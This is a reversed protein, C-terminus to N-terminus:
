YKDIIPWYCRCRSDLSPRCLAAALAGGMIGLWLADPEPLIAISQLAAPPIAIGANNMADRLVAFDAIDTMGDFNLDGAKMRELASFASANTQWGAVFAQLDAATLVRDQNVDGLVASPFEASSYLYARAVSAQENLNWSSLAGVQPGNRGWFLDYHGNPDRKNDHLWATAGNVKNLWLPNRDHLYLNDLADVLEFAWYGEPDLRGTASDFYRTVSRNAIRQAEALYATNGSVDYLELNASIGIGASNM